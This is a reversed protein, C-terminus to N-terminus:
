CRCRVVFGAVDLSLEGHLGHAELWDFVDEAEDKTLGGSSDIKGQCGPPSAPAHVRPFCFTGAPV